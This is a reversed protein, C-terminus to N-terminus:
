WRTLGAMMEMFQECETSEQGMCSIHKWYTDDNKMQHLVYKLLNTDLIIEDRQGVVVLVPVMCKIGYLGLEMDYMCKPSM